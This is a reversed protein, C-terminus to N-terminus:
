VEGTPFWLLLLSVGPVVSTWLWSEVWVAPSTLPAGDHVGHWAYTFVVYTATCLVGLALFLWALRDYRVPTHRERYRLLLAALLPFTPGAVINIVSGTEIVAAHIHDVATVVALVVFAIADVIGVVVAAWAWTAPPAPREASVLTGEQQSM